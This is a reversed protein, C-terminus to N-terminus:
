SRDFELRGGSRGEWAVLRRNKGSARSGNHHSVDVGPAYRASSRASHGLTLYRAYVISDTVIFELDRVSRSRHCAWGDYGVLAYRVIECGHYLGAVVGCSM